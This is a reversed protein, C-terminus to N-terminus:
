KVSESMAMELAPYKFQFGSDQFKQPKVKQGDLLIVSGEGFAFKIVFAPTPAFAPRCIVKGLMKAFAKNTVPQPSTGNFTGSLKNNEIIEVFMNALDEIYIWSMIQKGSGLPGGAGLKFIPLMKKLAGGNKGLVVGVRIVGVRQVLDKAMYAEAEWDQCLKALFDNGLTSNENLEEVGRSGYVGVASTSVFVKAQVNYTKIADVLVKTSHIRSNYIEKKQEETWRKEAISEGM